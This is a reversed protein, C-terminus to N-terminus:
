KKKKPAVTPPKGKRPARSLSATTPTTIASKQRLSTDGLVIKNTGPGGGLIAAADAASGDEDVDDANATAYGGAVPTAVSDPTTARATSPLVGIGGTSVTLPKGVNGSNNLWDGLKGFPDVPSSHPPASGTVSPLERGITPVPVESYDIGDDEPDVDPPDTPAAPKGGTYGSGGGGPVPYTIPTTPGTSGGGPYIVPITGGPMTNGGGNPPQSPVSGGGGRLPMVTLLSGPPWLLADYGSGPQNALSRVADMVEDYKRSAMDARVNAAEGASGTHNAIVWPVYQDRAPVRFKCRIISHAWSVELQQGVGARCWTWLHRMIENDSASCVGRMYAVYAETFCQRVGLSFGSKRDVGGRYLMHEFIYSLAIGPVGMPGAAVVHGKADINKAQNHNAASMLANKLDAHQDIYPNIINLREAGVVPIYPSPCTSARWYPSGTDLGYLVDDQQPTEFFQNGTEFYAIGFLLPAFEDPWTADGPRVFSFANRRDSSIRKALNFARAFQVVDNKGAAPTTPSPMCYVAAPSPKYGTPVNNNPPLVPRAPEGGSVCQVPLCAPVNRKCTSRVISMLDDNAYLIANNIMAILKSSIIIDAPRSTWFRKEAEYIAMQSHISM